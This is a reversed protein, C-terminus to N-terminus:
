TVRAKILMPSRTQAPVFDMLALADDWAAMGGLALIRAELMAGSNAAGELPAASLLFKLALRRAAPVVFRHPLSSVLTQATTPPPMDWTALFIVGGLIVLAVVVLIIKAM